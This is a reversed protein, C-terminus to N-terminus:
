SFQRCLVKDNMLLRKKFGNGINIGRFYMFATVLNGIFKYQTKYSSRGKGIQVRFETLSCYAIIKGDLTNQKLTVM